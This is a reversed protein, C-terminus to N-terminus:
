MRIIVGNGDAVEQPYFGHPIVRFGTLGGNPFASPARIQSNQKVPTLHPDPSQFSASPSSGLALLQLKTHVYTALQLSLLADTLLDPELDKPPLVFFSAGCVSYSDM